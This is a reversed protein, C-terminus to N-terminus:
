FAPTFLKVEVRREAEGALDGYRYRHWMRGRTKVLVTRTEPHVVIEVDGIKILYARGRRSVLDHWLSAPYEYPVAAGLVSTLYLPLGSATAAGVISSILRRAAEKVERRIEIDRGMGFLNLLMVDEISSAAEPSIPLPKLTFESAYDQVVVRSGSVNLAIWVPKDGILFMVTVQDPRDGIIMLRHTEPVTRSLELLFMAVEPSITETYFRVTDVKEGAVGRLIDEIDCTLLVTECKYVVHCM